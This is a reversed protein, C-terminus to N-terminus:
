AVLELRFSAGMGAARELCRVVERLEEWVGVHHELDASVSPDELAALLAVFTRLGESVDFWDEWPGMADALEGPDGDFGAPVPRNDAFASLATVGRGIAIEDLQEFSQLLLSGDLEPSLDQVEPQFVPWLGMGM